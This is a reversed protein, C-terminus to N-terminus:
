FGLRIIENFYKECTDVTEQITGIHNLGGIIKMLKEYAMSGDPTLDGCGDFPQNAGLEMLIGELGTEM